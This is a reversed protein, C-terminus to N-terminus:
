QHTARHFASGPSRMLPIAGAPIFSDAARGMLHITRFDLLYESFSDLMYADIRALEGEAKEDISEFLTTFIITNRQRDYLFFAHTLPLAAIRSGYENAVDLVSAAM